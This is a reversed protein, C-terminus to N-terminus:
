EAISSNPSTLCGIPYRFLSEQRLSSCFSRNLGDHPGYVKIGCTCTSHRCLINETRLNAHPHAFNLPTGTIETRWSCITM